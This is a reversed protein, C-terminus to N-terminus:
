VSTKIWEDVRNSLDGITSSNDITHHLPKEIWAYESMHIGMRDLESQIEPLRGMRVGEYFWPDDGRKIRVASGGMNTVMDIENPFRGDMVVVKRNGYDRIRKETNAVWIDTHFHERMVDTGFNRMAWRPTFHPIDLRNAWWQDVQERWERSETTVGELLTRDWNFISSLCDKLSDAFSLGVYGHGRILLEGVTNKGSGAFGVLVIKDM